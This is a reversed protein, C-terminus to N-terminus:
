GATTESRSESVNLPAIADEIDETETDNLVSSNRRKVKGEKKKCKICVIVIIIILLIGGVIALILGLSSSSSEPAPYTPAIYNPKGASLAISVTNTDFNFLTFYKRMFPTGLFTLNPVPATFDEPIKNVLATCNYISTDEPTVLYVDPTINYKTNDITFELILNDYPPTGTNGLSEIM